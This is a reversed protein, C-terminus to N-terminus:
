RLHRRLFADAAEFAQRAAAANREPTGGSTTFARALGHFDLHAYTTVLNPSMWLGHGAGPIVLHRVPYPYDHVALRAVIKEGSFASPWIADDSGSIMLLPSRMREVPIAFREADPARYMQEYWQAQRLSRDPTSYDSALRALDIPPFPAFPIPAGSLSWTSVDLGRQPHFGPTSLHGPAVAVLARVRTPYHAATLFAAETGRSIGIMGIRDHGVRSGLWQLAEAFYELPLEAPARPRDGYGFYGLALVTHGRGALLPAWDRDVGGGSGTLIIIASRAPEGAPEYLVGRVAGESIETVRVGATLWSRVIETRALIQGDSSVALRIAFPQTRDLDPVVNHRPDTALRALFDAEDQGVPRMSWLLGVPDVGRYTGGTSEATALDVTGRRDAIFRGESRWTVGARDSLEAEVTVPQAPVLGRVALAPDEFMLAEAHAAEIRPQGDSNIPAACSM